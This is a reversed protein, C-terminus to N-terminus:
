QCAEVLHRAAAAQGAFAAVDAWTPSDPNVTDTIRDLAAQLIDIATQLDGRQDMIADLPTRTAPTSFSM